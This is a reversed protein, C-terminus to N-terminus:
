WIGNCKLLEWNKIMFKLNRGGNKENMEWVLQRHEPIMLEPIAIVWQVASKSPIISVTDIFVPIVERQQMSSRITRKKDSIYLKIFDIPYPLTSRNTIKLGMYLIDGYRYITQLQVKMKYKSSHTSFFPRAAKVKAIDSALKLRDLPKKSLEIQAKSNGDATDSSVLKALDYTTQNPDPAYVVDFAYVRGDATFVHLNTPPFDRRAAKVTLVNEVGPQKQAMLDREGRDAQQVPSPFILVTTTYYGVFLKYHIIAANAPLNGSSQSFSTLALMACFVTSFITKKMVSYNLTHLIIKIDTAPQSYYFATVPESQSM